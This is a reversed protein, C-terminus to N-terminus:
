KYEIISYNIKIFIRKVFLLQGYFQPWKGIINFFSYLFSHKWNVIRKNINIAIKFFQATYALLLLLWLPSFSLSLSLILIPFIFAWFWIKLSDELCYKESGSGHLAYGQAYAHGSRVARMVWQSFRIIAADHLTMEYDLRCIKWRRHRLRYCLEPEEGAIVIPNFGGTELFASKRVLFDGGCSKAEGIPSNWEIDCLINYISKEPFREKRRGAVVACVSIKELYEVAFTLWGKCLECDGDIFQVYELEQHNNVLHQFGENRARGASFPTRMDLQVVAIGISEAYAVSDDSSDSDVYVIKETQCLASHLCLKLREGENRGIVVIGTNKIM